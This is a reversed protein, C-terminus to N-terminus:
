CRSLVRDEYLGGGKFYRSKRPVYVTVVVPSSEEYEYIVRVIHDNLPKHAILRNHHGRLVEAPKLLTEVVEEEGIRWKRAREISHFTLLITCQKGNETEVTYVRGREHSQVTLIRM